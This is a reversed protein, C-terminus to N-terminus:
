IHILSLDLLRAVAERVFTRGFREISRSVLSSGKFTLRGDYDQLVYNKKKYSLMRAARGEYAIRIGTPLVDNLAEVFAREAEEGAVGDPPEFLVGDTDVEVVVGGRRRIEAIVRRLLAQGTATVRDAETFDNFAAFGFGMFGYFSQGTWNFRGNRGALVTHVDAVTLCFVQGDSPVLRRQVPKVTPALGRTRPLMLRHCGDSRGPVMRRGIHLALRQVDRALADSLTTYRGGDADGDGAMLANFLPFLAAGPLAFVWEPLCKNASGAGCEAVLVDHLIRSSFVIGNEDTGHAIGM